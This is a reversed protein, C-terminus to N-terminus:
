TSVLCKLDDPKQFSKCIKDPTRQRHYNIGPQEFGLIEERFAGWYGENLSVIM